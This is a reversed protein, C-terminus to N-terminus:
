SAERLLAERLAPRAQLDAETLAGTSRALRKYHTSCLGRAHVDETCDDETCLPKNTLPPRGGPNKMLREADYASWNFPPAGTHLTSTHDVAFAQAAPKDLVWPGYQKDCRECRVVQTVGSDDVWVIGPPRKPLGKKARRHEASYASAATRCSQCRCGRRYTAASVPHDHLHESIEM